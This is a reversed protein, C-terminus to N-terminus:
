KKTIINIVGSLADAGWIASGPGRLVEIREIDELTIPLTPWQMGSYVVVNVPQGDILVLTKPTEDYAFGRAAVDM